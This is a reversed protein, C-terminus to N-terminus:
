KKRREDLLRRGDRIAEAVNPYVGGADADWQLEWFWMGVGLVDDFLGSEFAAKWYTAPLVGHSLTGENYVSLREQCEWSDCIGMETIFVPKGVTAAIEDLRVKARQMADLWLEYSTTKEESLRKADAKKLRPYVNVGIFDLECAVEPSMKTLDDGDFSVSFGVKFGADKAYRICRLTFDDQAHDLYVKGIENMVCFYEIGRGRYTDVLKTLVPWFFERWAAIQVENTSQFYDKWNYKTGSLRVMCTPIGRRAAEESQRLMMDMAEPIRYVRFEGTKPNYDTRQVLNLGDPEFAAEMELDRAMNAPDAYGFNGVLFPIHRAPQTDACCLVAMAFAMLGGLGTRTKTRGYVAKMTRHMM